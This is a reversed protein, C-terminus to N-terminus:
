AYFGLIPRMANLSALIASGNSILATIGPSVWGGPIALGLALTNLGAIIAYNQRVLQMANRSVDIATILKGMNEEILVVDAVERTVDAGNKMTIGIDAYALAASDNVGDGVMAVVHGRKQLDQVIAAKEAPLIESFFRDLGVRFGVARAVTRNDGTLMILNHIGRNRLTRIVSSMEPRIEDAYPLLGTLTGDVALLLRSYGAQNLHPLEAQAVRLSIGHAQLFRENGVHVHYGNIQAEVGLGIRFHAYRRKPIYVGEERAKAMVAHAVPHKLRAEAAAALAIIKERPFDRANYSLIDLVRPTGLTITGTKDFVITDATALKEIHSGSKILIGQRAAHTMSALIATPAAVRIGTGYDIIVMSLFREVDESLAYLGCSLALCPAVLRDAFKEAYNQVRTEGIPIQEVMQAIRAVTTESGVRTARLYLQGELLATGAYVVDGRRKEVPLSEGTITKQDVTAVGKTVQGDIPIMGGAYVIVTDDVALESVSVEVKQGSRLLWCRKAQYNLLGQIARKSRTATLDRITDGLSVLWAILAGTFLKGTFLSIAISLSDLFDVNLRRERKWVAYARIYSPWAAYLITGGAISTTVPGDLLSLPLSSTAVALSRAKESLSQNETAAASPLPNLATRYDLNCITEVLRSELGPQQAHYEIVISACFRNVRTGTVGDERGIWRTVTKLAEPFSKLSPFAIRLRGPLRHRVAFDM